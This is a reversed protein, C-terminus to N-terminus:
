WREYIFAQFPGRGGYSVTGQNSVISVTIGTPGPATTANIPLFSARAARLDRGPRLDGRELLRRSLASSAPARLGM